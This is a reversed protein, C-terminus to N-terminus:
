LELKQKTYPIAGEFDHYMYQITNYAQKNSYKVEVNVYAKKRTVRFQFPSPPTHNLKLTVKAKPTGVGECGSYPPVQIVKSQQGNWSITTMYIM